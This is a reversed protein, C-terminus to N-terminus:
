DKGAQSDLWSQLIIAAAAAHEKAQRRSLTTHGLSKRADYSSLTEDAVWVPLNLERLQDVFSEPCDGVVVADVRYHRVLRELARAAGKTKLTALPEVLSGSAIAVGIRAAGYDLGLYTM